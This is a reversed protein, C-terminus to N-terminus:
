WFNCHVKKQTSPDYDNDDDDSSSSSGLFQGGPTYNMQPVVFTALHTNLTNRYMRITNGVDVVHSTALNNRDRICM